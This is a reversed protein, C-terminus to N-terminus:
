CSYVPHILKIKIYEENQINQSSQILLLNHLLLPALIIWLNKYVVNIIQYTSLM